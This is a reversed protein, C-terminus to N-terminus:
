LFYYYYYFSISLFVFFYVQYSNRSGRTRIYLSLREVTTLAYPRIEHQRLLGRATQYAFFDRLQGYARSDPIRRSMGTPFAPLGAVAILRGSPRLPVTSM